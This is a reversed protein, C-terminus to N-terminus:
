NERKKIAYGSIIDVAALVLIVVTWINVTKKFFALLAALIILIVGTGISLKWQEM